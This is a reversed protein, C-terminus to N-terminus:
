LRGATGYNAVVSRIGRQHNKPVATELGVFGHSVTEPPGFPRDVRKKDDTHPAHDTGGKVHVGPRTGTSACHDM